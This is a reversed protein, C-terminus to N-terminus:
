YLCRKTVHLFMLSIDFYLISVSLCHGLGGGPISVVMTTNGFAFNGSAFPRLHSSGVVLRTPELWTTVVMAVKAPKMPRLEDSCTIREVRSM